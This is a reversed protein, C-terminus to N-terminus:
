VRTLVPTAPRPCSCGLPLDAFAPLTAGRFVDAGATTDTLADTALIM